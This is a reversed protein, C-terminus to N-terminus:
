LMEVLDPLLWYIAPGVWPKAEGQVVSVGLICFPTHREGNWNSLRLCCSGLPSIVGGPDLFSESGDEDWVASVRQPHCCFCLGAEPHLLVPIVPALPKHYPGLGGLMWIHVM